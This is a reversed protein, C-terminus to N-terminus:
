AESLKIIVKPADFQWTMCRSRTLRWWAGAEFEWLRVLQEDCFTWKSNPEFALNLPHRNPYISAVANSEDTLREEPTLKMIGVHILQKPRPAVLRYWTGWEDIM